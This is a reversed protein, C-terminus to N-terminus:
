FTKNDCINKENLNGYNKRKTKSLLSVSHNQQKVYNIKNVDSRNKLFKKRLKTKLMIAKSPNKNM